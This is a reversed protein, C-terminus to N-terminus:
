DAESDKERGEEGKENIMKREEEIKKGKNMERKRNKM